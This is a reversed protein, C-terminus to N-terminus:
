VDQKEKRFGGKVRHSGMQIKWLLERKLEPTTYGMEEAMEYTVNRRKLEAYICRWYELRNPAVFAANRAM